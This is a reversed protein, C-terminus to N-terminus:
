PLAVIVSHRRIAWGRFNTQAAFEDSAKRSKTSPHLARCIFRHHKL